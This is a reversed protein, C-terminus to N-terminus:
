SRHHFSYAYVTPSKYPMINYNKSLKETLNTLKDIEDKYNKKIYENNPINIIGDYIYECGIIMFSIDFGIFIYGEHYDITENVYTKHDSIQRYILTKDILNDPLIMCNYNERMDDGNFIIGKVDCDKEYIVSFDDATLVFGYSLILDSM